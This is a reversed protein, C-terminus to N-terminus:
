WIVLSDSHAGDIASNYFNNASMSRNTFTSGGSDNWATDVYNLNGNWPNWGNIPVYHRVSISGWEPLGYTDVAAVLAGGYDELDFATDSTFNSYTLTGTGRDEPDAAFVNYSQNNTLFDREAYYETGWALGSGAPAQEMEWYAAEYLYGYWGNGWGYVGNSSLNEGDGYSNKYDRVASIDWTRATFTTSGPGCLDFYFNWTDNRPNVSPSPTRNTHTANFIWGGGYSAGYNNYTNPEPKLTYNNAYYWNGSQYDPSATAPGSSTSVGLADPHQALWAKQAAIKNDIANRQAPSLPPATTVPLAGGCAGPLTTCSPPASTGAPAPPSQGAASAKPSASAVGVFLAPIMLALRGWRTNM